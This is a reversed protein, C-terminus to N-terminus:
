SLRVGKARAVAAIEEMVGRYFVATDPCALIEGISLRGLATVGGQACIFLFKEWLDALIHTSLEAQIGAGTFVKLLREARPTSRGDLEGFKLTRPGATQAIIGPASITSLIHVVGGLVRGKGLIAELKEENDVGNQVCVVATDPGLMPRIQRGAAETDYGKVSFLITEVQGVTAPDNTAKPHVHFDGAASQVMLGSRQIAELHAGRAIFTVDEGAQALRGGFYGGVGGSGMIAFRM